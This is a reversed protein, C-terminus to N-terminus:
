IEDPFARKTPRSSSPPDELNWSGLWPFASRFNQFGTVEATYECVITMSKQKTQLM